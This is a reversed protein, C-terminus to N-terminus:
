RDTSGDAPMVRYPPVGCADVGFVLMWLGVAFVVLLVVDLVRRLMAM